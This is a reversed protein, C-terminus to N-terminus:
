AAGHHENGIDEQLSHTEVQDNSEFCDTEPGEREAVSEDYQSVAVTETAEDEGVISTCHQDKAQRASKQLLSPPRGDSEQLPCAEAAFDTQPQQQQNADTGVDDCLLDDDTRSIISERVEPIGIELIKNNNHPQEAVSGCDSLADDDSMEEVVGPCQQSALSKGSSRVVAVPVNIFFDSSVHADEDEEFLDDLKRGPTPQFGADDGSLEASFVNPNSPGLPCSELNSSGLGSIEGIMTPMVLTQHSTGCTTRRTARPAIVGGFSHKSLAAFRSPKKDGASSAEPRVKDGHLARRFAWFRREQPHEKRVRAYSPRVYILCNFFGQLPLCIAQCVLAPFLKSEDSAGYGRSELIRLAMAPVYTVLFALVYLFAQTAVARIRRAQHPNHSATSLCSGVSSDDGAGLALKELYRQSKVITARVHLFVLLNNGVIAVFTLFTPVGAFIWAMTASLCCQEGELPEVLDCTVCGQPFDYIWCAHGIQNENYMGFGAGILATILPYGISLIHMWPEYRRSMRDEKVGFKVTLLFYFSLMGNYWVSCFTFQQFFGLADCTADNGVAWLRQSTDSPLLFAQWPFVVSSIMDCVSLGLLIRRYPTKKGSVLVMYIINASGWLSLLAPLIPLLSLVMDQTESLSSIGAPTESSLSSSSSFATEESLFIDDM